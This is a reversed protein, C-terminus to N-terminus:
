EPEAYSCGGVAIRIFGATHPLPARASRAVELLHGNRFDGRVCEPDRGAEVREALIFSSSRQEVLNLFERQLKLVLTWDDIVKSCGKRSHKEKVVVEDQAVSNLREEEAGLSREPKVPGIFGFSECAFNKLKIGAVGAGGVKEMAEGLLGRCGRVSRM